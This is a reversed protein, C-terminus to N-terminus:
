SDWFDSLHNTLSEQTVVQHPFWERPFLQQYSSQLFRDDLLLIAGRDNMTRIVRGAAQLVKNMGPYQYAYAFGLQATSSKQDFFERYLENENCVMPLGTGVIVAGILQEEKLDIGESFIGGLVCLGVVSHDVDNQFYDLFDERDEETMSNQQVLIDIDQMAAALKEDHELLDLLQLHIEEMMRYSPFFVMYNGQKCSCFTLIYQAIRQYMAASRATYKTSVGRGIMLLRNSVPFPSPAYIAYDEERGALQERYYRIPLFTASFFIAARGKALYVDLNDAPIMCQLHVCFQGSENYDCYLLYNQDILEYINLFARILFYLDLIKDMIEESIHREPLSDDQLFEDMVSSLRLLKGYLSDLTSPTCKLISDCQRKLDLFGRNATELSATLKKSVMKVSKKLALFDEKVLSASYMARARDVLNHAEDVLFLYDDSTESGFFRKLHSDPDFAYNYDGIIADCWIATDLGMEFPCVMHKEAYECLTSRSIFDEHTLIDFVADNIRDFHGKARPCFAPHCNPKELICIKSKATLTIYKLFANNEALLSFTDEAVTRTITKATLYFLKDILGEGMAKVGPFVTAITKGVGTPAEIYLRKKRLISQYVGKVLDSQGERYPFPFELTHLSDNRKTQWKIQWCMWKAYSDLLQEYWKSLEEFTIQEEFYRVEETPIHCYTMRVGISDLSHDCAYIYAYCLAQARHVPVPHEMSSLDRYIGKIEDIHTIGDKEFIGDARGEVCIEFDIGEKHIQSTHDLSVEAHYATGMKKQLKKHIRTGELMANPDRLGSSTTIDGSRLIFEVLNRVSIKISRM